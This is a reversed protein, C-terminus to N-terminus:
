EIMIMTEEPFSSFSLAAELSINPGLAIHLQYSYLHLQKTKLNIWTILNSVFFYDKNHNTLENKGVNLLLSLSKITADPDEDDSAQHWCLADQPYIPGSRSIICVYLDKSKQDKQLQDSLNFVTSQQFPKKRTLTAPRQSLGWFTRQRQHCQRWM